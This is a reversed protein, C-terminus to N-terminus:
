SEQRAFRVSALTLVIVAYIALAGMQDWFPSLDSGKIVIGRLIVLYYRAPVIRTLMQLPEPMNAIPFIFGSLLLTPLLATMVGIQFAVAQSDAITSVFLGWGLAGILFLVTAAFLDLYPGQVVVGFLARAAALILVVGALSTFLYPFLKGLLIDGTRLPLVRLQELTGREKERVVSLATSIVATFMMLFAILGPVLFQTSLLEPNYWVRPQFNIAAQLAQRDGNGAVYGRIRTGNYSAAVGTVYGMVTSATSADVGDVLVQVDATEGRALTREYREPIVLVASAGNRDLFGNIDSGAPLDAVLAFRKGSVFADILARSAASRDRDQVALPVNEVDFNLAYGYLVLMAMPLVIIMFLTLPDRLVQKVEKIAMAAARKM